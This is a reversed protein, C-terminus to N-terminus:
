TAIEDEIPTEEEEPEIPGSVRSLYRRLESLLTDPPIPRHFHGREVISIVGTEESVIVIVADSDLSLGIAARHRSGLTRDM